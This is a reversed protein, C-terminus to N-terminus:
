ISYFLICYFGEIFDTLIIVIIYDLFRNHAIAQSCFKCTLLISFNAGLWVGFYFLTYSFRFLCFAFMTSNALSTDM